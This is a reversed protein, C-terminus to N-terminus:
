SPSVLSLILQLGLPRKLFCCQVQELRLSAKEDGRIEAWLRPTKNNHGEPKSAKLVLLPMQFELLQMAHIEITRKGPLQYAAGLVGVCGSEIQIWSLVACVLSQDCAIRLPQKALRPKTATGHGPLRGRRGLRLPRIVQVHLGSM